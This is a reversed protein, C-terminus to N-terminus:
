RPSGVPITLAVLLSGNGPNIDGLQANSLHYTEIGIRWGDRFRWGIEFSSRFQLAMGLDKGRAGQDYYGPAFGLRIFPRRGLPIDVAVGAYVQFAGASTVMGGAMPQFLWWRGSWRYQAGLEAARYTDDTFEFLGGTVGVSPRPSPDPAPDAARAGTPAALVALVILVWGKM